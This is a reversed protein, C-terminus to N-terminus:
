YSIGIQHSSYPLQEFSKKYLIFFEISFQALAISFFQLAWQVVIVSIDSKIKIHWLKNDIHM